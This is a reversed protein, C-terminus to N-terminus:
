LDITTSAKKDCAKFENVFKSAKYNGTCNFAIYKIENNDLFTFILYSNVIRSVTEKTRGGIMAGVPGFLIAGGVTGGVSSVNNKQIEVDTTISIDTVKDKSLKFTNGNALFQYENPCSFVKVLVNEAIPLGYFHFLAIFLNANKDKKLSELESKAKSKRSSTYYIMFLCFCIFIVSFILTLDM